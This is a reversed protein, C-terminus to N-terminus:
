ENLLSKRKKFAYYLYKALSVIVLANKSSIFSYFKNLSVNEMMNEPFFNYRIDEYEPCVMLFHYEDELTYANRKICFPCNRYSRDLGMHRGKEIM